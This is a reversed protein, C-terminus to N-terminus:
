LFWLTKEPVKPASPQIKGEDRYQNMKATLLETIPKAPQWQISPTGVCVLDYAYFDLDVAEKPKKVEVNVGSAELGEKIANAVKQTNGTSSHYVILAKKM